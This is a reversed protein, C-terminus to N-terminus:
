GRISTLSKNVSPGDSVFDMGAMRGEYVKGNWTMSLKVSKNFVVTMHTKDKFDLVTADVLRTTNAQRVKCTDGHRIVATM